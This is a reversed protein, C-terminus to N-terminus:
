HKHWLTHWERCSCWRWCWGLRWRFCRSLWWSLCCSWCCCTRRRNTTTRICPSNCYSYYTSKNEDDEDDDDYHEQNPPVVVWRTHTVKTSAHETCMQILSFLPRTGLSTYTHIYKCSCISSKRRKRNNLAYLYVLTPQREKYTQTHSIIM